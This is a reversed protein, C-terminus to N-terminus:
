YIDPRLPQDPTQEDSILPSFELNGVQQLGDGIHQQLLEFVQNSLSSESFSLTGMYSGGEFDMMLYITALPELRSGVISRLTGIEGTLKLNGEGDIRIWDPPWNISSCHRLQM